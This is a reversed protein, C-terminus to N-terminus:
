KKEKTAFKSADAQLKVNELILSKGKLQEVLLKENRNSNDGMIEQMLRICVDNSESITKKASKPRKLDNAGSSDTAPATVNKNSQKKLVAEAGFADDLSRLVAARSMAEGIEDDIDVDLLRVSTM